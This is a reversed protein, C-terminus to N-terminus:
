EEYVEETKAAMAEGFGYGLLDHTTVIGLLQDDEVIPLAHFKNALFIDAALGVTDEPDLTVPYRTMIDEAKLANYEKESYTKGTTQLSLVYALKFIDEKSIIGLLRYGDGIVPIHHFANKDFVAKIENIPTNPKVTVMKTTMISSIPNDPNM